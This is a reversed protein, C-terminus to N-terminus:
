FDPTDDSPVPVLGQDFRDGNNEQCISEEMPYDAAEYIQMMSYPATFAGPDEVYAVIQLVRSNPDSFYQDSRPRPADTILDPSGPIIRIREVVHLQDSHPIPFNGMYTRDNLGITDVVITDGEYHGVSEGMWSPAPNDSHKQNLYIRRVTQGRQHVIVVMDPSQLFLAPEATFGLWGPVGPPWCRQAATFPVGGDFVKQNAARIFEAAWPLLLPNTDDGIRVTPVGGSNNGVHPYDPHDRIPGRVGPAGPLPPMINAQRSHWGFGNQFFDPYNAQEAANAITPINVMLALLAGITCITIFQSASYRCM